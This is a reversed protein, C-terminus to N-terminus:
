LCTLLGATTVTCTKGPPNTTTTTTVPYSNSTTV